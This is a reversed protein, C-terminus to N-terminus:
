SLILGASEVYATDPGMYRVRIVPGITGVGLLDEGIDLYGREGQDTVSDAAGM